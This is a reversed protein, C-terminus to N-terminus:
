AARSAIPIIKASHLEVPASDALAGRMQAGTYPKALFRSAPPLQADAALPRGSTMVVTIDRHAQRAAVAVDVGCMAGPLGIDTFLADIRVHRTIQEVAEAGDSASLVRFGADELVIRAHLLIM